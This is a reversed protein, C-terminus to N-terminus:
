LLDIELRLLPYEILFRLKESDYMFEGNSKISLFPFYLFFTKETRVNLISISLDPDQSKILNNRPDKRENKIEMITNM